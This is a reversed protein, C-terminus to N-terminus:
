GGGKVVKSIQKVDRAHDSTKAIWLLGAVTIGAVLAEQWVEGMASAVLFAVFVVLGGLIPERNRIAFQWM